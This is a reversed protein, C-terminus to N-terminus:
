LTVAARKEDAGGGHGIRFRLAAAKRRIENAGPGRIGRHDRWLDGDGGFIEIAQSPHDLVAFIQFHGHVKLCPKVGLIQHGVIGDCFNGAGIEFMFQDHQASM